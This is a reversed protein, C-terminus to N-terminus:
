CGSELVFALAHMGDPGAMKAIEIALEEIYGPVLEHDTQMTQAEM